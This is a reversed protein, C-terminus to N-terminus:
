RGLANALASRILAAMTTGERAARVKLRQRLKADVYVLIPRLGPDSPKTPV